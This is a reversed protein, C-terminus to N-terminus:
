GRGYAGTFNFNNTIINGIFASLAEKGKRLTRNRVVANFIASHVDGERLQQLISPISNSTSTSNGDLGNELIRSITPYALFSLVLVRNQELVRHRELRWTIIFNSFNNEQNL